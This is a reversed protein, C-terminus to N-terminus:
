VADLGGGELVKPLGQVQQGPVAGPVPHQHQVVEVAEGVPVSQPVEGSGDGEQGRGEQHAQRSAGLRVPGEPLPDELPCHPDEGPGEQGEGPLLHRFEETQALAVGPVPIGEEGPRPAPGDGHPGEQQAGPRPRGGPSRPFLQEKGVELGVHPIEQVFPRAGEQYLDGQGGEEGRLQAGAEGAEGSAVPDELVEVSPVQEEGAGFVPGVAEVVQEPLEEEEAQFFEPAGLLPLCEAPDQRLGEELPSVVVGCCGEVDPAGVPLADGGAAPGQSLVGGLVGQLLADGEGLAVEQAAGVGQPLAVGVRRCLAGHGVVQVPVHLTEEGGQVEHQLRGPFPVVFVETAQRPDQPKQVAAAGQPCVQLLQQVEGTGLLVAGARPRLGQGRPGERGVQGQHVAGERIPGIPEGPQVGKGVGETPGASGEQPVVHVEDAEAGLPSAEVLLVPQLLGALQRHPRLGPRRPAPLVQPEARVQEEQGDQRGQPLPVLRLAQLSLDGPAHILLVQSGQQGVEPRPPVPLAQRLSVPLGRRFPQCSVGDGDRLPRGEVPDGLVEHGEPGEQRLSARVQGEEQPFLEALQRLVVTAGQVAELGEDEQGSGLPLPPLPSPGQVQQLLGERRRGGLAQDPPEQVLGRAQPRDERGEQLAAPSPVLGKAPEGHVHM